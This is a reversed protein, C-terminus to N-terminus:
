EFYTITGNIEQEGIKQMSQTILTIITQIENAKISRAINKAKEIDGEGIALGLEQLTDSMYINMGINQQVTIKPKTGILILYHLIM